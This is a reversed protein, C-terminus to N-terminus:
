GSTAALGRRAWPPAAPADDPFREAIGRFREPMQLLGDILDPDFQTGRAGALYAIAADHAIAPKYVRWSILADYVDAIAM